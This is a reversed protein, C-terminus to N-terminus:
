NAPHSLAIWLIRVGFKKVKAMQVAFTIRLDTWSQRRDDLLTVVVKLLTMHAFTGGLTMAYLYVVKAPVLRHTRALGGSLGTVPSLHGVRSVCIM